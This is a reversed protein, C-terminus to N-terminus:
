EDGDDDGAGASEEAEAKPRREAIRKAWKEAVAVEALSGEIVEGEEITRTSIEGDPVGPFSKTVKARM